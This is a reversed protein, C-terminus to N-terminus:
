LRPRNIKKFTQINPGYGETKRDPIYIEFPQNLAKFFNGLLATSAAGDVDYDGFIIIKEKKNIAELTRKVTTEMDKLLFPNPLLNKISPDLFSKVDEKKIKRIALLKAVIEDLFFDTKLYRVDEANFTKKIWNKGTVSAVNM